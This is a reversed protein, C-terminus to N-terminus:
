TNLIISIITGALGTLALIVLAWIRSDISDLRIKFDSKTEKLDAKIEKLDEKMITLHVDKILAVENALDDLSKDVTRRREPENNLQRLPEYNM